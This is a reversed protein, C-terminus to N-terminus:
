IEDNWVAFVHIQQPEQRAPRTQWALRGGLWQSGHNKGTRLSSTKSWCPSFPSSALLGSTLGHCQAASLTGSETGLARPACSWRGLPAPTSSCPISFCTRFSSEGKVQLSLFQEWQGCQRGPGSLRRRCQASTARSNYLRTKKKLVKQALNSM